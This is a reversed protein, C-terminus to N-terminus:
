LNFRKILKEALREAALYEEDDEAIDLLDDEDPSDPYDRIWREYAVDDAGIRNYWKQLIRIRQPINRKKM